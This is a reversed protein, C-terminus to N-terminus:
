KASLKLLNSEIMTRMETMSRMMVYVDSESLADLPMVTRRLKRRSLIKLSTLDHTVRCCSSFVIMEDIDEIEFRAM